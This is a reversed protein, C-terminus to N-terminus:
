QNGPGEKVLVSSVARSSAALYLYLSEGRDPKALAPLSNLYQKLEEFAQNCKDTWAFRKAGKLTEYFPLCKDGSRALFRGLAALRGTLRQVERVTTPLQLDLIAKVKEPNAEIGRQTLMYGLFKGSQVGFACKTPNLKMNYRKLNAFTEQLDALHDEPKLSKVLMDDVYAAINRGIQSEFIRNVLRQYTAGANKLGFPMARYCFIASDSYFATREEDVYDMRIQNYGSYADMFSLLAHGATDDVLQDIRPLPYCDKPCAKNLDTFDVCMRWKGNAKKIPVVNSLWEHYRVERIFGAEVLKQVEDKVAQLREGTLPRKVQKVPKHGPDIGLKHTIVEPNIGPMDALKWAFVDANERLFRCIYERQAGLATGIKVTGGAENITVEEMDDVPEPRDPLDERPDGTEINYSASQTASTSAPETRQSIPANAYCENAMSQDGQVMGSGNETPFKMSLHYTSVAAKIANLTKRGLIINYPSPGEVVMFSISTIAQHPATGFIAPLTVSGTSLISGGAFGVLPSRVPLMASAPLKMQRYAEGFIIDVASGTDVLIRKVDFGGVRATIVLADDHPHIIHPSDKESFNLHFPM